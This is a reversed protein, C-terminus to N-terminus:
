WVRVHLVCCLVKLRASVMQLQSASGPHAICLVLHPWVHHYNLHFVYLLVRRQMTLSLGIQLNIYTHIDKPGVSLHLASNM